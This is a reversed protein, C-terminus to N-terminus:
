FYHCHGNNFILSEFELCSRFYIVNYYVIMLLVLKLVLIAHIPGNGIKLPSAIFYFPLWNTQRMESIDVGGM